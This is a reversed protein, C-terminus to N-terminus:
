KIGRAGFRMALIIGQIDGCGAAPADANATNACQLLGHKGGLPHHADDQTISADPARPGSVIRGLPIRQRQMHIVGRARRKPRNAIHGRADVVYHPWVIRHGTVLRMAHQAHAWTSGDRSGPWWRRTPRSERWPSNFM